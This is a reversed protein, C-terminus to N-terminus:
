PAPPPAPMNGLMEARSGAGTAPAKLGALKAQVSEPTVKGAAMSFTNGDQTTFHVLGMNDAEARLGLSDALKQIHEPAPRAAPNRLTPSPTSARREAQGAPPEGSTMRRESARNLRDIEALEDKIRAQEEPFRDGLKALQDRLQMARTARDMMGGSVTDEQLLPVERGPLQGPTAPPLGTGPIPGPGAGGPGAGPGGAGGPQVPTPIGPLPQAGTLGMPIDDARALQRMAYEIQRGPNQGMRLYFRTGVGRPNVYSTPALGLRQRETPGLLKGLNERFDALAAYRREYPRLSPQGLGTMEREIADGLLKDVHVFVPTMRETSAMTEAATGSARQYKRLQQNVARNLVEADHMSIPATPDKAVRAAIHHTFEDYDPITSLKKMARQVADIDDPSTPHSMFVKAKGEDAAKVMPAIESQYMESMYSNTDKWLNTPRFETKLMGGPANPDFVGAKGALSRKAIRQLDPAAAELNHRYGIAATENPATDPVARVLADTMQGIAEHIEPFYRRLMWGATATAAKAGLEMGAFLGGEKAIDGAAALSTGPVKEAGTARNALQRTAEGAGAGLGALGAGALAGVPPAALTLAAAGAAPLLGTAKQTADANAQRSEQALQEPSTTAKHYKGVAVIDRIDM